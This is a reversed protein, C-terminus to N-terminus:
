CGCKYQLERSEANTSIGLYTFYKKYVFEGVGRFPIAKVHGDTINRIIINHFSYESQDM